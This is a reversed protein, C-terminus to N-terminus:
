EESHFYKRANNYFIAAIDIPAYGRRVLGDSVTSFDEYGRLGELPHTGYFDTGICVGETGFEQVFSDILRIYTQVDNGGIFDRVATLGILGGRELVIRVQKDTLNRPHSFFTEWGTHSVILREACDAGGYFSERNLHAGDVAIRIENLLRVSTKGFAT